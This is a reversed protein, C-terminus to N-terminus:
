LWANPTITLAHRLQTLYAQKSIAINGFQLLHPNTYQTDLLTYGRENLHQVLHVLAIKSANPKRSFMSEGFFASGLAVGYVGGVLMDDQWCEISHAYGMEHLQTYLTIIEPNIWSEKRTETEKACQTIVQHFATDTTIRFPKKHMARKLSKPIHFTDLPIIGRDEPSFWYLQEDERTEAMPFYGNAYANILMEATLSPDDM